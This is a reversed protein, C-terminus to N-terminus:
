TARRWQSVKQWEVDRWLDSLDCSWNAHQGSRARALGV